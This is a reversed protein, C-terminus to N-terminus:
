QHQKLAEHILDRSIQAVPILDEITITSCFM